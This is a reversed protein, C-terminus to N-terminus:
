HIVETRTFWTRGAKNSIRSRVYLKLYDPSHSDTNLCTMQANTGLFCNNCAEVPNDPPDADWKPIVTNNKPINGNCFRHTDNSLQFVRQVIDVHENMNTNRIYQDNRLNYLKGEQIRYVTGNSTIAFLQSEKLLGVKKNPQRGDISLDLDGDQRDIVIAQLTRGTAGDVTSFIIQEEYFDGDVDYGEKTSLEGVAQKGRWQWFFSLQGNNSLILSKDVGAAAVPDTGDFHIDFNGAPNYDTNKFNGVIQQLVVCGVGNACTPDWCRSDTPHNSGCQAMGAPQTLPFDVVKFNATLFSFRQGNIWVDYHPLVDNDCKGAACSSAWDNYDDKDTPYFLQNSYTGSGSVVLPVRDRSGFKNGFDGSLRDEIVMTTATNRGPKERYAMEFSKSMAYRTAQMQTRMYNGGSVGQRFILSIVFILISGFIALEIASQGQHNDLM